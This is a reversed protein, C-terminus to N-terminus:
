TRLVRGDKRRLVVNETPVYEPLIVGEEVLEKVFAIKNKYHRTKRTDPQGSGDYLTLVSRNDQEIRTPGSQPYGLENLLDRFWPLSEFLAAVEAQMASTSVTKQKTSSHFVPVGGISIVLGSHGKSDRHIDHSADVSATVQM